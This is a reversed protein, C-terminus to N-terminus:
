IHDGFSHFPPLSGSKEGTFQVGKLPEFRAEIAKMADTVLNPLPDKGSAAQNMIWDYRAEPPLPLARRRM